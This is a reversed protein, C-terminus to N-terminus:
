RDIIHSPGKSTEAPNAQPAIKVPVRKVIHVWKADLFKLIAPNGSYKRRLAAEDKAVADCKLYARTAEIGAARDPHARVEAAWEDCGMRRHILDDADAPLEALDLAELIRPDNQYRKRLLAVDNAIADCKFYLRQADLQAASNPEPHTALSNCGANRDVLAQVEAPPDARPAPEEGMSASSLAVAVLALAAYPATTSPVAM